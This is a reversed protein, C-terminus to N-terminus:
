HLRLSINILMMRPMYPGWTDQIVADIRVPDATIDGEKTRAFILPRAPPGRVARYAHGLGHRPHDLRKRYAERRMAVLHRVRADRKCIVEKRVRSLEVVLHQISMEGM